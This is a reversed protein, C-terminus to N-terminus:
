TGPKIYPFTFSVTLKPAPPYYGNRSSTSTTRSRSHPLNPSGSSQSSTRGGRYAARQQEKEWEIEDQDIVSWNDEIIGRSFTRSRGNAITNEKTLLSMTSVPSGPVSPRSLKSSQHPRYGSASYDRTPMDYRSSPHSNSYAIPQPPGHKMIFSDPRGQHLADSPDYGRRPSSAQVSSTRSRQGSRSSTTSRQPPLVQIQEQHRLLPGSGRTHAQPHGPHLSFSHSRHHPSPHGRNDVLGSSARSRANRQSANANLYHGASVREERGNAHRLVLPPPLSRSSEGDSDSTYIASETDSPPMDPPILATRKPPLRRLWDSTLESPPKYPRYPREYDAM